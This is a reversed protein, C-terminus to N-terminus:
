FRSAAQTSVKSYHIWIDRVIPLCFWLFLEAILWALMQWFELRFPQRVPPLAVVTMPKWSILKLLCSATLRVTQTPTPTQTWRSSVVLVAEYEKCDLNHAPYFM